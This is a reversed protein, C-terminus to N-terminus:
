QSEVGGAGPVTGLPFLCAFCWFLLMFCFLGTLDAFLVTGAMAIIFFFLGPSFIGGTLSAFWSIYATFILLITRGRIVFESGTHGNILFHAAWILCAAAISPSILALTKAYLGMGALSFIIATM